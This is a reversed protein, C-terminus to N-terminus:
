CTRCYGCQAFWLCVFVCAAPSIEGKGSAVLQQAMSEYVQTLPSFAFFDQADSVFLREHLRFIHFDPDCFVRAVVATPVARTRNGTGFFLASLPLAVFDVFETSFRLLRLFPRIPVLMFPLSYRYAVEM